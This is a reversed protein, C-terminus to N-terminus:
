RLNVRGIVNKGTEVSKRDRKRFFHMTPGGIADGLDALVAHTQERVPRYCFARSGLIGQPAPQRYQHLIRAAKALAHRVHMPLQHLTMSAAEQDAGVCRLDSRGQLDSSGLDSSWDSIRM